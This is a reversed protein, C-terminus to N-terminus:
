KYGWQTVQPGVCCKFCVCLCVDLMLSKCSEAIYFVLCTLSSAFTRFPFCRSPEHSFLVPVAYLYATRKTFNVNKKKEQIWRFSGHSPLYLSRKPKENIGPQNKTPLGPWSFLSLSCVTTQNLPPLVPGKRIARTVPFLLWSNCWSEVGVILRAPFSSPSFRLSHINSLFLASPIFFSTFSVNQVNLSM